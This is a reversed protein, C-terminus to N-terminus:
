LMLFLTFPTLRLFNTNNAKASVFGPEAPLRSFRVPTCGNQRQWSTGSVGARAKPPGAAWAVRIGGLHFLHTFHCMRTNQSAKLRHIVIVKWVNCGDQIRPRKAEEGTHTHTNRTRHACSRPGCGAREKQRMKGCYGCRPFFFFFSVTKAPALLNDVAKFWMPAKMSPWNHSPLIPGIRWSKHPICWTNAELEWFCATWRKNCLLDTKRRPGSSSDVQLNMMSDTEISVTLLLLQEPTKKEKKSGGEDWMKNSRNGKNEGGLNHSCPHFVGKM